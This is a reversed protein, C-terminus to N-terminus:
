IGTKWFTWVLEAISRSFWSTLLQGTTVM